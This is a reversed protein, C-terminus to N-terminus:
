YGQKKETREIVDQLEDSKLFEIPSFGKEFTLSDALLERYCQILRKVVQRWFLLAYM